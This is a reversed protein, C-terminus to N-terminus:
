KALGHRLELVQKANIDIVNQNIVGDDVASVIGDILENPTISNGGLVYLLMTNGANIADTANKIPDSFDADGSQQLMLMDDTIAIGKFNDRQRLIEHWKVSLSAPSSDVTSYILHGFMVVQAGANIGSVFPKEDRDQWQRYSIDTTPISYHSDGTTEGHGPYHKLTSLVNGKEGRVAAAVRDGASTPDIGLVRPYIFSYPNDTLDAVIGFNLNMGAQTLMVSRESFATETADAPQSKLELASLFSDEALRQVTGGEEDIAFLFPLEPDTQLQSTIEGLEEATMSGINDPMFILGGPQYDALFQGLTTADSGSVHLILLSAVKQRLTMSALKVEAFSPETKKVVTKTKNQELPHGSFSLWAFFVSLTIVTLIGFAM